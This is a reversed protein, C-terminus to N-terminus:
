VDELMTATDTAAYVPAGHALADGLSQYHDLHAHTLCIASLYEGTDEDLLDDTSVNQGADVLVCVTQDTLLGDIRLVVSERGSHPNAHQFQIEM